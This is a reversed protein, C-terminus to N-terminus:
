PQGQFWAVTEPLGATLSRPAYALDAEARERKHLWRDVATAKVAEVTIPFHLGTPRAVADLLWAAPRALTVPLRMRPAKVHALAAVRQAFENMSTPDGTLLYVEGAAGRDLAAVIGEAVDDVFVYSFWSPRSLLAPVKRRVIDRVFTGAPGEDGPGYVFSPCVVTLAAGASQARRALRHADAKTRHYESHYPGEYADRPEAVVEGTPGLAVTSSIYVVRPTGARAAAALFARTGEVNARELAGPAVIGIEYLGAIHIAGDAAQLGRGHAAEDTVDGVVLEAGLQALEDARAPSRVLCRIREGRDILRRAVRSGIFGTAGTLYIM